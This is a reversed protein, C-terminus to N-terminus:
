RVFADALGGDVPLVQGTIKASRDSILYFVAEAQDEPTIASKTLTRQAYFGALKARLADTDESEDFKIEYKTLSATVRDRPPTRRASLTSRM